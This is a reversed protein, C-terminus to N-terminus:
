IAVSSMRPDQLPPGMEYPFIEGVAEARLSTPSSSFSPYPPFFIQFHSQANENESSGAILSLLWGDYELIANSTM